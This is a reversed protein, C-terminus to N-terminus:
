FPVGGSAKKKQEDGLMAVFKIFAKKIQQDESHADSAPSAMNKVLWEIRAVIRPGGKHNHLMPVGSETLAKHAAAKFENLAKWSTRQESEAVLGRLKEISEKLEFAEPPCHGFLKGEGSDAISRLVRCIDETTPAFTLRTVTRFEIEKDALAKVREVAQVLTEKGQPQVIKAIAQLTRHRRDSRKKEHDLESKVEKVTEEALGDLDTIHERLMSVAESPKVYCEKDYGSWTCRVNFQDDCHRVDRVSGFYGGNCFPCCFVKGRQDPCLCDCGDQMSKLKDIAEGLLKIREQPRMPKPLAAAAMKPHHSRVGAKDCVERIQLCLDLYASVSQEQCEEVLQVFDTYNLVNAEFAAYRVTPEPWLWDLLLQHDFRNRIRCSVLWCSRGFNIDSEHNM